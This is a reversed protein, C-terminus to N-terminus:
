VRYLNLMHNKHWGTLSLLLEKGDFLDKYIPNNYVYFVNKGGKAADIKQLVEGTIKKDFSNKNHVVIHDYERFLGAYDVDRVDSCLLAFDAGIKTLNRDAIDLLDQSLDVGVIRCREFQKAAIICPKGKGVGLDIFLVTGHSILYKNRLETFAKVLTSAYTPQYWNAGEAPAQNVLKFFQDHTIINATEVGNVLDFLRNEVLEEKFRRLGNKLGHTQLMKVLMLM